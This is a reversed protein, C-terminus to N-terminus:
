QNSEEMWRESQSDASTSYLGMTSLLSGRFRLTVLDLGGDGGEEGSGRGTELVVEVNSRDM